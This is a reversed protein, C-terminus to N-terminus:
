ARMAPDRDLQNEEHPDLEIPAPASNAAAAIGYLLLVKQTEMCPTKVPPYWIPIIELAASILVPISIHKNRAAHRINAAFQNM